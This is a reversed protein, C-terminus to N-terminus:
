QVLALAEAGTVVEYETEQSPIKVPKPLATNVHGGYMNVTADIQEQNQTDVAAKVIAKTEENEAGIGIKWQAATPQYNSRNFVDRSQEVGDVTVVKYLVASYGIHTSQERAAFGIGQDEASEYKNPLIVARQIEPIYEIKRNSPRDEVGYIKFTISDEDTTYGEIYIPYDKNNKIILDKWESVAADCSPYAYDVIMSHPYRKVIELEAQIVAGYLTTSVQCVGGGMAAVTKGNEYGTAEFYGNEATFPTVAPYVCIEDGPYLLRGNLKAAATHINGKRNDSSTKFETTCTGLVDRIKSLEEASGRPQVIETDLEITTEQGDWQNTIYSCIIAASSEANVGEGANGETVVFKGGERKLGFDCAGDSLKEKHAELFRKTELLDCSLSIDFNKGPRNTHNILYKELVNGVKGYNMAQEVIPNKTTISLDSAKINYESKGAILKIPVEDYESIFSEVVKDAEEFSMFSVNVGCISVGDPIFQGEYKQYLELKAMQEESLEQEEGEASTNAGADSSASAANVYEAGSFTMILIALIVCLTGKFKRM